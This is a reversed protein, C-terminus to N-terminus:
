RGRWLLALWNVKMGVVMTALLVPWSLHPVVRAAIVLMAISVGIKLMEWFMFGAASAAANAARRTMGRAMLASPLVVAAAGYAASWAADSGGLVVALLVCLVGAFAQAAVVRWPSVSPERKVLAQAEERSLRRFPPDTAQDADDWATARARDGRPSPASM